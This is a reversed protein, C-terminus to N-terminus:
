LSVNLSADDRFSSLMQKTVDFVAVFSVYTLRANIKASLLYALVSEVNAVCGRNQM